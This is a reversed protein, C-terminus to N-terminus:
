SAWRAKGEPRPQAAELAEIREALDASEILKAAIELIAKAASVRVAGLHKEDQAITHLVSLATEARTLAQRMLRRLREDQLRRLEATAEASNLHGRVTRASIASQAAIERPGQGQAALELVQQRRVAADKRM